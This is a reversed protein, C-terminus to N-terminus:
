EIQGLEKLFLGRVEDIREGMNDVTWDDTFIPPLVVVEVSTPKFISSGRPMADHANKIVIPVLPVGAEM